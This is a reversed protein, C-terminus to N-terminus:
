QLSIGNTPQEKKNESVKQLMAACKKVHRNFIFKSKFHRFCMECLNGGRNRRTSLLRKVMATTKSHTHMTFVRNRCTRDIKSTLGYLRSRTRKAETYCNARLLLHRLFEQTTCFAKQCASCKHLRYKKHENIHDYLELRSVAVVKCKKFPCKLLSRVIRKSANCHHKNLLTEHDLNLGCAFCLVKPGRHVAMHGYFYQTRKCVEGCILCERYNKYEVSNEKVYKLFEEKQEEETLQTAACDMSDTKNDMIDEFDDDRNCQVAISIFGSITIDTQQERHVISARPETMCETDKRYVPNNMLVQGASYNVTPMVPNPMTLHNVTSMPSQVTNLISNSTEPLIRVNYPASMSLGLSQQTVTVLQASPSVTGYQPPTHLNTNTMMSSVTIPNSLVMTKNRVSVAPQKNRIAPLSKHQSSVIAAKNVNAPPVEYKSLEIQGQNVNMYFLMQDKKQNAGARTIFRTEVCITEPIEKFNVVFMEKSGKAMTSM